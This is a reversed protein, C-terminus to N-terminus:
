IEEVTKNAVRTSQIEDANLEVAGTRDASELDLRWSFPIPALADAVRLRGVADDGRVGLYGVRAENGSRSMLFPDGGGNVSERATLYAERLLAADCFPLLRSSEGRWRGGVLESARGQDQSAIENSLPGATVTMAIAMDTLCLNLGEWYRQKEFVALASRFPGAPAFAYPEAARMLAAIAMDYANMECLYLLRASQLDAFEPAQQPLVAGSIGQVGLIIGRGANKERAWAGAGECINRVSGHLRHSALKAESLLDLFHGVVGGYASGLRGVGSEGIPEDFGRMVTPRNEQRERWVRAQAYRMAGQSFFEANWFQMETRLGSEANM